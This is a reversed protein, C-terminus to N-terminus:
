FQVQITLNNYKNLNFIFFTLSISKQNINKRRILFYNKIPSFGNLIIFIFFYM